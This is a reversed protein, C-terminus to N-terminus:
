LGPGQVYNYYMCVYECLCLIEVVHQATDDM